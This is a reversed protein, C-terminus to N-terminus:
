DPRSRWRQITPGCIRHRPDAREARRDPLRAPAPRAPAAERRRRAADPRRVSRASARRRAARRHRYLGALESRLEGDTGTHRRCERDGRSLRRQRHQRLALRALPHRLPAQRSQRCLRRRAGGGGAADRGACLRGAARVSKDNTFALVPVRAGQAIPAVKRTDAGFVPGLMIRAGQALLKRAASDAGGATATDEVLLTFREDGVEFLGMEAAQLMTRGLAAQPGSLPLLLGVKVSTDLPLQPRPRPATPAPKAKRSRRRYTPRAAPPVSRMM